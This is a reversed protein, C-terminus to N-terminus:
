HQISTVILETTIGCCPTHTHIHMCAYHIMAKLAALSVLQLQFTEAQTSMESPFCVTVPTFMGKNRSKNWFSEQNQLVFTFIITGMSFLINQQCFQCNPSKHHSLSSEQLCRRRRFFCTIHIYPTCYIPKIEEEERGGEHVRRTSKGWIGKKTHGTRQQIRNMHAGSDATLGTSYGAVIFSNIQRQRQERVTTKVLIEPSKLGQSSGASIFALLWAGVHKGLSLVSIQRKRPIAQAQM